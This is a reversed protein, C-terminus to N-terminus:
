AFLVFEMSQASEMIAKLMLHGDEFLIDRNDNLYVQFRGNALKDVHSISLMAPRDTPENAGLMGQETLVRLIFRGSDFM